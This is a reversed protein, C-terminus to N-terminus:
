FITETAGSPFDEAPSPAPLRCAALAATGEWAPAPVPAAAPVCTPAIRSTVSHSGDGLYRVKAGCGGRGCRRLASRVQLVGPICPPQLAAGWGRESGPLLWDGEAFRLCFLESRPPHAPRARSLTLAFSAQLTVCSSGGRAFPIRSSLLLLTGDGVGPLLELCPSRPTFRASSLDAAERPAIKRATKLFILLFSM